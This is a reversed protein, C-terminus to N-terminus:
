ILIVIKYAGEEYIYETNEPDTKVIIKNGCHHCKMTFEWIRTSHFKGVKKFSILIHTLNIKKVANKKRM